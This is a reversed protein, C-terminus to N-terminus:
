VFRKSINAGFDGNRFKAKLQSSIADIDNDSIEGDHLERLVSRIDLGAAKGLYHGLRSNYIHILFAFLPLKLEAPIEGLTNDIFYVKKKSNVIINGAHPDRHFLGDIFLESLLEYKIAKNIKRINIGSRVLEDSKELLAGEVFEEIFVFNNFLRYGKPTTIEIGYSGNRSSLIERLRDQDEKEKNFDLEELLSGKVREL